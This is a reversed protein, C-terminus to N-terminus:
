AACTREAREIVGLLETEQEASLRSQPALSPRLAQYIERARDVDLCRGTALWAGVMDRSWVRPEWHERRFHHATHETALFNGGPGVQEILDLALEEDTAEFEACLHTLAGTFEDDLIMQLPSCVEDISLLGAAVNGCGCAMLTAVVSLAKQAGAECSPLKADTLGAHGSCPLGYFRAMQATAMNAFAMEPRGYPYITTRMDLVALSSGLSFASGGFLARQLIGLALREALNLALAGALTVPATAGLAYMDGIGVQLGRGWFYLVQHAEHRGLKLPPVLYVTGRFVEQVPKGLQEARVQYLEYLHPCLEDLHIAGSEQAGYKWCYYKEYLTELNPPVPLRCGLMSTSDVNPLSHALAFYEALRSEDWPVLEGSVPDHYLGHYVGASATVRPTLSTWDVKDTNALFREVLDPAYRVRQLAADVQGGHGELYRLIEDNEIEMGVTHLIHLAAQHIARVEADSLVDVTGPKLRM